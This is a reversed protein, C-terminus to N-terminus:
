LPMPGARVRYLGLHLVGKVVVAFCPLFAVSSGRKLLPKVLHFLSSAGNVVNRKFSCNMFNRGSVM